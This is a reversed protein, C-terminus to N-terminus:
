EGYTYYAAIGNNTIIKMPRQGGGVQNVVQFYVTNEPYLYQRSCTFHCETGNILIMFTDTVLTVSGSNKVSINYDYNTGNDSRTVLTINISTLLQEQIRDKMTVYSTTIDEMTPLFDSAIIEVAMFLTIGLIAAAAILSFGM